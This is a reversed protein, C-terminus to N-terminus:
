PPADKRYIIVACVANLACHIFCHTNYCAYGIHAKQFWIALSTPNFPFGFTAPLRRLLNLELLEAKRKPVFVV